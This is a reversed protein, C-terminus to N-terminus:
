EAQEPLSIDLPVFRVVWVTEKSTKWADWFLRPHIGDITLGQEVLYQLGEREFDSSPMQDTTEQYPDCTLRLAGIRKGGFRPSRDFADHAQGAKFRRAYEPNWRRRTCTKRGALFAQTTWAFSIIVVGKGYSGVRVWFGGCSSM